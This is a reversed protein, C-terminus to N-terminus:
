PENQEPRESKSMWISAARSNAGCNWCFILSKVESKIQKSPITRLTKKPWNYSAEQNEQRRGPLSIGGYVRHRVTSWLDYAIAAGGSAGGPTESSAFM